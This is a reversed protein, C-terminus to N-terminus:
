RQTITPVLRDTLLHMSKYRRVTGVKFLPPNLSHIHIIFCKLANLTALALRHSSKLTLQPKSQVLPELMFDSTYLIVIWYVCVAKEQTFVCSCICYLVSCTSCYCGSGWGSGWCHCWCSSRPRLFNVPLFTNNM